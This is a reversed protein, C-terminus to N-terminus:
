APCAFQTRVGFEPAQLAANRLLGEPDGLVQRTLPKSGLSEPDFGRSDTGFPPEM